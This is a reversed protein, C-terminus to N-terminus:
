SVILYKRHSAINIKGPIIIVPAATGMGKNLNRVDGDVEFWSLSGHVKIINICKENYFRSADFGSLDSLGTGDAYRMNNLSCVYELVRDYNTTVIDLKRPHAFTFKDLLKGIAAVYADVNGASLSELFKIDYISIYKWIERKIDLHRSEYKSEGLVTELNRKLELDPLLTDKLHKALCAMTPLGCPVSAGSGWIILPTTCLFEQVVKFVIDKVKEM